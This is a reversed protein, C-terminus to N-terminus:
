DTICYSCYGSKGEESEEATNFHQISFPNYTIDKTYVAWVSPQCTSYTGVFM